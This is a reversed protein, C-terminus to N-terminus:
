DGLLGFKEIPTKSVHEASGSCVCKEDKYYGKGDCDADCEWLDCYDAISEHADSSSVIVAVLDRAALDSTGQPAGFSTAVLALVFTM